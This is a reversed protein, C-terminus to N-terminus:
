SGAREASLSPTSLILRGKRMRRTTKRAKATTHNTTRRGLGPSASGATRGRRGDRGRRADGAQGGGLGLRLLGDGGRVGRRRALLGRGVRDAARGGGGLRRGLARAPWGPRARRWARWARSARGRRRRRARRGTALRQEGGDVGALDDRARAPAMGRGKDTGGSAPRARGAGVETVDGNPGRHTGNPAPARDAAPTRRPRSAPGRRRGTAPQSGQKVLAGPRRLRRAARRGHHAASGRDAGARRAHPRVSRQPAPAARAGAVRPRASIALWSFGRTPSEPRASRRTGHAQRALTQHRDGLRQRSSVLPENEPDAIAARAAAPSRQITPSRRRPLAHTDVLLRSM